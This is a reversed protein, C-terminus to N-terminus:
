AQMAAPLAQSRRPARRAVARAKYMQLTRLQLPATSASGMVGDMADERVLHGKAWGGIAPNAPCRLRDYSRHTLLLTRAGLGRRRLGRGRLRM